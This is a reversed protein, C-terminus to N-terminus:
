HNVSLEFTPILTHNQIPQYKGPQPPITLNIGMAAPNPLVVVKIKPDLTSFLNVSHVFSAYGKDSDEFVGNQAWLTRNFSIIKKAIYSRILDDKGIRSYLDLLDNFSANRGEMDVNLVEAYQSNMFNRDRMLVEAEDWEYLSLIGDNANIRDSSCGGCNAVIEELKDISTAFVGFERLLSDARSHLKEYDANIESLRSCLEECEYKPNYRLYQYYKTLFLGLEPNGKEQAHAVDLAVVEEFESKTMAILADGLQLQCDDGHGVLRIGNASQQVTAFTRNGDTPMVLYDYSSLGIDDRVRSEALPYLESYTEWTKMVLKRCDQNCIRFKIYEKNAELIAREVNDSDNAIILSNFVQDVYATDLCSPDNGTMEHIKEMSRGYLARITSDTNFRLQSITSKDLMWDDCVHIINNGRGLRGYEKNAHNFARRAEFPEDVKLYYQVILSGMAAVAAEKDDEQKRRAKARLKYYLKYLKAQYATREEASAFSSEVLTKRLVSLQKCIRKPGAITVLNDNEHQAMSVTSVLLFLTVLGFTFTALHTTVLSVQFSHTVQDCLRHTWHNFFSRETM